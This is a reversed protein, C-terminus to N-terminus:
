PVRIRRVVASLLVTLLQRMRSLSGAQWVAVRFYKQFIDMKGKTLFTCEIISLQTQWIDDAVKAEILKERNFSAAYFYGAVTRALLKTQQLYDPRRWTAWMYNDEHPMYVAFPERVKVVPFSFAARYWYEADASYEFREDFGGVQEYVRRHWFNGSAIPLRLNRVTDSGAPVVALELDSTPCQIILAPEQQMGVIERFREIAGPRYRDDSCLLGLWEGRAQELCRNWNRVMGLNSENRFLRIGPRSGLQRQLEEFLAPESANDVIVIETDALILGISEVAELVQLVRNWTPILISLLPSAQQEM